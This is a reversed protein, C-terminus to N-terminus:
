RRGAPPADRQRVDGAGPAHRHLVVPQRHARRHQDVGQLLPHRHDLRQLRGQVQRRARGLHHRGLRRDGAHRLRLDDGAAHRRELRGVRPEHGRRQHRHGQVHLGHRQDPRHGDRQDGLRRGVRADAGDRRRLADRHLGHDPQRRRGAAGDVDGEGPELGGARRRGHAGLAGGRDAPDRRQVAGVGPGSGTPNIAQVTFTYTTGTTLGTITAATAPPSGNITTPTQATSGVYPTIKYSTVAGGTAPASWTVNASTKGGAVASVNTVQGPAPTPSFVVDVWYNAAGFSNAPFTSSASYTYVGNTETGTNRIAHLPPADATGGGNPGPAPNRYLYNATAAYHGNPAYYSAIYTTGPTVQVPTAFTVTQWGSGTEGTFTAQALRTGDTSWLSGIHTGTNAAAKYFRVGTVAGFSDAKFKVGVEGPTPDGSDADATPVQTSTGWLSCPCNVNVTVGAGPTQLNGSDDVARVKVVTSPNGHATWTYTWSTTGTAPHWTTGGDTSVEVGAVVGGGTDSATGSITVQSGDSVTSPVSLTSTPATSDTSASAATLDSQMTGPQAGMDALLNLTAQEM